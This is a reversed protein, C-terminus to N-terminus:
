IRCMSCTPGTSPQAYLKDWIAFHQHHKQESTRQNAQLCGSNYLVVYQITNGLYCFHWIIFYHCDAFQSNPSHCAVHWCVPCGTDPQRPYWGVLVLHLYSISIYKMLIHGERRTISALSWSRHELSLLEVNIDNM